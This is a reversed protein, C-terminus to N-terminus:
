GTHRLREAPAAARQASVSALHGHFPPDAASTRRAFQPQEFRAADRNWEVFWSQGAAASRHRLLTINFCPRGPAQALSRSTGSAVQWRTDAASAVVGAAHRLLLLRVGSARAALALKRSATLGYLPSAGWFEVVATSLGSCRAAELGAQLVGAVDPALVCAMDQPALGLEVLGPPHIAGAEVQLFRQRVWIVRLVAPRAAPTSKASTAKAPTAQSQMAQAATALAFGAAAAVDAPQGSYIEHLGAQQTAPLPIGGEARAGPASPAVRFAQPRVLTM